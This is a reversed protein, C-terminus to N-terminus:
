QHSSSHALSFCDNIMSQMIATRITGVDPLGSFMRNCIRIIPLMFQRPMPLEDASCENIDVRKIASPDIALDTVAELLAKWAAGCWLCDESGYFM